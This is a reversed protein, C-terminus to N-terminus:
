RHPLLDNASQFNNDCVCIVRGKTLAIELIVLIITLIDGAHECDFYQLSRLM